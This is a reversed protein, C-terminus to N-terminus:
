RPSSPAWPPCRRALPAQLAAAADLDLADFDARGAFEEVSVPDAARVREM